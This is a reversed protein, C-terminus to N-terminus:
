RTSSIARASVRQYLPTLLVPLVYMPIQAVGVYIAFDPGVMTETMVLVLALNRYGAALGATLARVAGVPRFVLATVLQSGVNYLFAAVLFGAVLSPNDLLRATVGDMVALAFLMLSAIVLASIKRRSAAITAKGVVGRLVTALAFPLLIFLTMRWLYEGLDLEASTTLLLDSWVVLAMPMLLTTALVIATMLPADLHLLRAFAPSSFIPGACASLVLVMRLEGAVPVM